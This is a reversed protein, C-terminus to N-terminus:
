DPILDVLLRSILNKSQNRKKKQPAGENIAIMLQKVKKNIAAYRTLLEAKSFARGEEPYDNVLEKLEKLYKKTKKESFKDGSKSVQSRLQKSKAHLSEEPLCDAISNSNGDTDSIGCGCFGEETKAPDSACSDNCDNTGDSDSDADSIGCGCVGAETKRDDTPCSDVCDATGDSDSDTDPEGCGCQGATSKNPDLPCQDSSNRVGDEDRDIDLTFQRAYLGLGTNFTTHNSGDLDSVHYQGNLEASYVKGAILDLATSNIGNVTYLTELGSGDLNARVLTDAYYNGVYMKNGSIDIALNTPHNLGSSLLTEVSSGDLNMRLVSNADNRTFYVKENELDLAIGATGGTDDYLTEHSSGNLNARKIWGETYSTWYIKGAGVAIHWPLGQGTIITEINSGDINSKKISGSRDSWYLKSENFDIANGIAGNPLSGVGILTSPNSGDLEMKGILHTGMMAAYEQSWFIQDDMQAIANFSLTFVALISRIM